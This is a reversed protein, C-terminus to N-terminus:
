GMARSKRARSRTRQPQTQGIRRIANYWRGSQLQRPAAFASAGPLATAVALGLLSTSRSSSTERRFGRRARTLALASSETYALSTICHFKLDVRNRIRLRPKDNEIMVTCFVYRENAVPV